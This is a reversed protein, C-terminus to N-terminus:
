RRGDSAALLRGDCALNLVEPVLTDSFRSGTAQGTRLSAVLESTPVHGSAIVDALDEFTVAGLVRNEIVAVVGAVGAVPILAAALEAGGGGLGSAPLRQLLSQGLLLRIDEPVAGAPEAPAVVTALPALEGPRDTATVARV